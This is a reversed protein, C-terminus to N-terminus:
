LNEDNFIKVVFDCGHNFLQSYNNQVTYIFRESESSRRAINGFAELRADASDAIGNLGFLKLLSILQDVGTLKVTKSLVPEFEQIIRQTSTFSGSFEFPLSAPLLLHAMDATETMFYDQVVVFDAQNIWEGAEAPDIACGVPDEGFIFLNRIGGHNLLSTLQDPAQDPEAGPTVSPHIGMDWIGQSNNKEKLCILGSATKGLKGTINALNKVEVVENGSLEKESFILIANQELNYSEAFAAVMSDDDLGAETLLGPYDEALVATKYDEFGRCHDKIFLGNQLNNKLLYHNVAKIFHYYSDIRITEDVKRDLQSSEYVTINTVPVGATVHAQNVLFGAVANDVHIESGLLYIRSAERIEAFPVNKESGRIFGTGRGVYHFSGINPTGVGERALKQILYLEENSLRAGAFFANEGPKAGDTKSKILAFAEEFSIAIWSEGKRIMPQKIRSSSNLYKYGFKAYRCINADPNVLGERGTIKWIFGKYEHIEISCGISCFNCIAKHPTFRVPGPKFVFNETIAGTPCASICLGCSECNTESLPLGMSPAVYTEFGRNVLGLADAGALEHCIRVCRSCLICKNNDIEIYPHRSDVERENFTGSYKKQEAGYEDSLRKLDCTFVENCGCELCRSTEEFAMAESYGLEVENFNSRQEPPLLPMEQRLSHGYRAQYAKPEQAKFNDKRSIFEPAPVEVPQGNLYQSCSRAAIKAQAIAEILTAPGTVGDGAAFVSNIGTQLTRKSADIDGWKTVKLEGDPSFANVDHVFDVVTKQGIAAFVYDLELQYESGEVPIPRRRGSADPEGLEMRIIRMSKLKGNKDKLIEVPNNLFLYEIGEVKSEHIEIPNAPMEKETRRYVVYVKKAGLRKATRCCDMATNGGGVVAVTKGSFDPKQGTMEINRLFDIGSFVNEADDGPCGVRTGAQSGITLVMANYNEHIEGYSLDAGLKRNYFINVGLRTINEVESNIIENPLRYPPIGYRLMGGPNPSAEYIDVAHGERRLFWAASLGGPGAGIVAVKKGTDVKLEPHYRNPSALDHDSAFRKMYDIGVAAGEDMLNRRCAVECPRVCVRGCIAPLPNVEKILGVAASYMGKEILSIYGQVDVGAPCTQTCPATCDAYHNSTLLDLATKRAKKVKESKTKIVMGEAVKTSCSPQLTRSGEIEVVCVYCSSYPELRPDHCLTPINIGNRKAADLINEGSYGTYKSGDIIINLETM